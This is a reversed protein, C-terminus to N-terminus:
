DGGGQRIAPPQTAYLQRFGAILQQKETDSLRANAHNPMVKYKLPPMEGSKIADVIENLEPQPKNWDSLNMHERGGNVDNQILWSAPAINSYWWWKTDNSHCDACADTFIQRQAATQFRVPQTGPPNAHDRGYPVLQIVLLLAILGLAGLGLIRKWNRRKPAPAPPPAVDPSPTVDTM